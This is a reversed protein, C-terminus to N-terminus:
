KVGPKLLNPLSLHLVLYADNLNQARTRRINSIKRYTRLLDMEWLRPGLENLNYLHLVSLKGGGNGYLCSGSLWARNQSVDLRCASIANSM